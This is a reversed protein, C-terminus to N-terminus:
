LTGSTWKQASVILAIDTDLYARVMELCVMAEAEQVIEYVFKDSHDKGPPLADLVEIAANLPTLRGEVVLSHEPAGELM